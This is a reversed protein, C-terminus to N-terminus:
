KCTDQINQNMKRFLTKMTKIEDESFEKMLSKFFAQQAIQGEEIISSCTDSLKLHMRKKDNAFHHAIILEKELLHQISTSVHSKSLGRRHILDSATDYEPQNALFLLIDLEMRRLAHRNAVPQMFQDYLRKLMFINLLFDPM